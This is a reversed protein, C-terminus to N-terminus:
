PCCHSPAQAHRVAPADAQLHVVPGATPPGLVLHGCPSYKTALLLSGLGWALGPGPVLLCLPAQPLSSLWSYPPEVCLARRAEQIHEEEETRAGRGLDWCQAESWCNGVTWPTVQLGGPGPPGPAPPLSCAERPVRLVAPM